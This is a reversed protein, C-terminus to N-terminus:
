NQSLYLVYAAGGHKIPLSRLSTFLKAFIIHKKKITISLVDQVCVQELCEIELVLLCFRQHYIKYCVIQM